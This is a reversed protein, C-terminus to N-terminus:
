GATQKKILDAAREAIMITAANTNARPITPMISADAVRLGELGHVRLEPDVVAMVDVGMKCTGVPHYYTQANQGVFASLAAEAVDPGPSIERGRLRDFPAAEVIRRGLRIGEILVRMDEGEPDSCYNPQILPSKLPDNSRLAISGRSRPKLAAAAITFGHEKPERLGQELWLIPMLLLQIDPDPADARTSVHALVEVGSGALMGRGQILYRALNRLSKAKLLSVPERSLYLLPAIPHDQLNQGVGALAHLVEIDHTRLQDPPGIGSQMLLAPSNVTGGCLIIERRARIEIHEDGRLCAVGVANKGKLIIRNVHTEIWIDLNKRHREPQLYAKAVSWRRGRKQTFQCYGIGDLREGNFDDNRRLGIALGSEFFAQSLPNSDRADSVCLPGQDGHFPGAGRENRESKIFYPLVEQYSWGPNGAAAWEDFDARAGRLYIQANISSSGGLTKGRPWYIARGGWQEQPATEYNWDIESKFLSVWAAPISVERRTDAPGAELLLVRVNPDDSLRNALVCGASGGGVIVFDYEFSKTM